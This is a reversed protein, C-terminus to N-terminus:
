HGGLVLYGERRLRAAIRNEARLAELETFPGKMPNLDQRLGLGHRRVWKSANHGAQHQQWRREPHLGTIGVYLPPKTPDHGPNQKVAAPLQLVESSLGGVYTHWGKVPEPNLVFSGEARLERVLKDQRALGGWRKAHRSRLGEVTKIGYSGVVGKGAGVCAVLSIDSHNTRSLCVYYCNAGPIADPNLARAKKTRAALTELLVPVVWYYSKTV